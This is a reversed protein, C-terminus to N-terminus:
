KRKRLFILSDKSCVYEFRTELLTKIEEPKDTVRVTFEDGAEAGFIAHEINIYVMTNRIDKHGLLQQVYVIDRTRHYEMTAKWHRLTYLTIKLLGPNQLNEALRKRTKIGTTKMSKLSGTFIQESRRPLSNLIGILKQSVKWSHRKAGVRKFPCHRLKRTLKILRARM